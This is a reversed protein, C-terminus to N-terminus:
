VFNLFNPFFVYWLVLRYMSFQEDDGLIRRFREQNHFITLTIAIRVAKRRRLTSMSSLRLDCYHYIDYYLKLGNYIDVFTELMSFSPPLHLLPQATIAFFYHRGYAEHIFLCCHHFTFSYCVVCLRM